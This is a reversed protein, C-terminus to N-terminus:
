ELHVGHHMVYRRDTWVLQARGKLKGFLQQLSAPRDGPHTDEVLERLSTDALVAFYRRDHVGLIACSSSATWATRAAWLGLSASQRATREAPPHEWCAVPSGDAPAPLEGDHCSGEAPVGDICPWWAVAAFWEELTCDTGPVLHVHPHLEMDEPAAELVLVLEGNSKLGTVNALQRVVRVLDAAGGIDVGPPAGPRAPLPLDRPRSGAVRLSAATLRREVLTLFLVPPLKPTQATIGPAHEALWRDLSSGHSSHKQVLGLLDGCSFVDEEPVIDDEEFALKALARRFVDAIRREAEPHERVLIRYLDALPLGLQFLAELASSVYDHPPIQESPLMNRFKESVGCLAERLRRNRSQPDGGAYLDLLLLQLRARGIEVDVGPM